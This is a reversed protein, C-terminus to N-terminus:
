PKEGVEIVDFDVLDVWKEIWASFLTKNDTEMLQFCKSGDKSLWSDIYLLGVPLMRGKEHFRSYVEDLKGAHFSEVIM